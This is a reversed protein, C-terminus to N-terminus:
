QPLNRIYEYIKDFNPVGLGYVADYGKSAVYGYKCNMYETSNNSGEEIDKFCDNCNAAIDYLLPAVFGVVSRNQSLRLNNLKTIIGSVSPASASTGDVAMYEGEIMVLYNHSVLSIDPYIRGLKNYFKDPPFVVGSSLYKNSVNEQWWPRNFYDSFGGGSTWGCRDFNCNLESGGNICNYQKCINTTDNLKTGNLVITGGVSLVYPSSTPFTPNLPATEDCEESTRGPAGADGSSALLTLGRLSLKLFEINTRKTYEEADGSIYCEPFVMPDCQDKEAWGYSMSNVLPPNTLNYLMNAFQYLWDQMSVYYEITNTNVGIQYQIDLSAEVDPYPTDVDCEGIIHSKSVNIKPLSSDNLFDYLDNINFCADNQFEVVTQSSNVSNISKSINYLKRLSSPTIYLNNDKVTKTKMTNYTYEPFDGIGIIIRIIDDLYAPISYGKKRGSYFIAKTKINRYKLITTNFIKNINEVRTICYLSDTTERLSYNSISSDIWDKVIEVQKLDTGIIRDIESKNLWKGYSKHTPNSINFLTNELININQQPLLLGFELQLDLSPKGIEEWNAPIINTHNKNVRNSGDDFAFVNGMCSGFLLVLNILYM